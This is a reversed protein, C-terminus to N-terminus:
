KGKPAEVKKPEPEPERTTRYGKAKWAELDCANIIMAGKKGYVTITPISAM